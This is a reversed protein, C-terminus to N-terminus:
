YNMKMLMILCSLIERIEIDIKNEIIMQLCVLENKLILKNSFQPKNGVIFFNSILGSYEDLQHSINDNSEFGGFPCYDPHYFKVNEYNLSFDKHAESLSHWVPNDLKIM